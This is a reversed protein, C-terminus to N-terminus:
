GQGCGLKRKGPMSLIAPCWRPLQDLQEQREREQQRAMVMWAARPRPEAIQQQHEGRPAPNVIALDNAAFVGARRSRLEDEGRDGQAGAASAQHAAVAQLRLLSLIRSIDLSGLRFPIM